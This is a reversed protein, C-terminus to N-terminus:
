DRPSSDSEALDPPAPEGRARAGEAMLSLAEPDDEALKVVHSGHRVYIAGDKMKWLDGRFRYPLKVPDRLVEVIGVLQGGYKV